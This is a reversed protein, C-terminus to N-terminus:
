RKRQQWLMVPLLLKTLPSWADGAFVEHHPRLVYSGDRHEIVTEDRRVYARKGCMLGGVCDLTRTGDAYIRKM